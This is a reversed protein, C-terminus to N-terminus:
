AAKASWAPVGAGIDIFFFEVATDVCIERQLPPPSVMFDQLAFLYGLILPIGDGGPGLPFATLEVLRSYGGLYVPMVQWLGCPNSVMLRASALAGAHYKPPLIDLHDTGAVPYDVSSQYLHGAVRMKLTNESERPAEILVLNTLFRAAKSPKFDNRWPVLAGRRLSKWFEEFALSGSSRERM